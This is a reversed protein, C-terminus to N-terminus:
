MLANQTAKFETFIIVREELKVLLGMTLDLKAPREIQSLQVLQELSSAPIIAKGRTRGMAELTKRAARPHSCTERLLLILPLMNRKQPPQSHYARRLHAVMAGYFQREKRSLPVSLSHVERRPFQVLAEQRGRRVMVESLLERLRALNRPSHKDLMFEQKFQSYTKLQGPQLLTILNHLERLENQVPTATLLLLYKKEIGNVFAWNATNKNKLRHAEDVIVMDWKQAHIVAANEKRKATDLSAILLKGRFSAPTRGLSFELKLKESMERRWQNVLSAPVLILVRQVLGRLLYERLIVGAEITKGLGVEDALLARGRMHRLVTMVAERQHEYLEIDLADLAILRDFGRFLSL